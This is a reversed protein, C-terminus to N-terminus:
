LFYLKLPNLLYVPYFLVCVKQVVEYFQLIFDPNRVEFYRVNSNLLPRFFEVTLSM